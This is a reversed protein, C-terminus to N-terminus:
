DFRHRYSCKKCLDETVKRNSFGNYISMARPSSLIDELSTKFINGLNIEGEGDLCCPVVSGDVLIGFQDRLGYCFGNIDLANSITPWVFEYDQNLYIGEDLKISKQELVLKDLNNINFSDKLYNIIRLNIQDKFDKKIDWLRLSFITKCSKKKEKIFSIIDTLYENVNMMDDNQNISHLSINMQRIPANNLKDKNINILTGNTTLNVLINNEDCIKLFESINPNILPEGKIHFYVLNTYPKISNIIHTFEDIDMMKKYRSNNLCFKCNLNCINTIEIYVKKFKKM